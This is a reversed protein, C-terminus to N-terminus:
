KDLRVELTRNSGSLPIQARQENEGVSLIQIRDRPVVLPVTIGPVEVIVFEEKQNGGDSFFRVKGIVEIANELHAMIVDQEPCLVDQLRFTVETKREKTRDEKM